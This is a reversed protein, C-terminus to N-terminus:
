REPGSAPPGDAGLVAAAMDELSLSQIREEARRLAAPPVGAAIAERLRVARDQVDKDKATGQAIWIAIELSQEREGQKWLLEAWGILAAGVLTPAQIAIATRLAERYSTGADGINGQAAAIDGLGTLSYAVGYADGIERRIALSAERLQKAEAMEKLRFAV